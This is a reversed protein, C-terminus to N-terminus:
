EKPTRLENDISQNLNEIKELLQEYFGFKISNTFLSEAFLVKFEEDEKLVEVNKM